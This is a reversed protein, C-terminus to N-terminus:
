NLKLFSKVLYDDPIVAGANIQNYIYVAQTSQEINYSHELYVGAENINGLKDYAVSLVLLLGPDQPYTKIASNAYDIAQSYQGNALLLSAYEISPFASTPNLNVAQLFAAQAQQMNNVAVYDTGLDFWYGSDKPEMQVAALLHPQAADYQKEQWLEVGLANQLLNSGPNIVTDHKFLRLDDHFDSNRVITRVSFAVFLVALLVAGVKKYEVPLRLQQIALTLLALLGVSPLYFWRDAVTADLSIIQIHFGIGIVLWACFFLFTNFKQTDNKHVWRGWVVLVVICLITIVLPLWFDKLTAQGVVWLQWTALHAPWFFTGLYHAVIKPTSLLRQSLPFTSIPILQSPPTFVFRAIVIRFFLYEAFALASVISLNKFQARNFLYAYLPVLIIFSLGTEKSLLAVVLLVNIGVLFKWPVKKRISLLLAGLGFAMFFIDQFAAISEAVEANIPVVVFFLATILATRKTFFKGLLWYVLIGNLVVVCLSFLHFPFAHQGFISYIVSYAAYMIPRYYANISSIRSFFKFFNGISHIPTYDVIQAIDDGTFGNFLVNCYAILAVIAIIRIPYRSAFNDIKKLFAQM